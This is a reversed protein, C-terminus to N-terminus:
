RYRIILFNDGQRFLSKETKPLQIFADANVLSALDGSGNGQIPTALLHGFKDSL